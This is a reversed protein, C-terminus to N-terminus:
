SLGWAPNRMMQRGIGVLDANGKELLEEAQAPTRVGGTLIVPIKTNQKVAYSMDSFWGPENIGRRTFGNFGGSLDLIDIGEKELLVAAKAADQVTSGGDMYDCGGLRVAVPYDDGVSARVKSITETLFRLRNELSQPGYDDKRFNTLPSYFQNLLYGHASHIEVGDYGAKKARLAASAFADELRHIEFVNLERSTGGQVRVASASVLPHGTIRPSTNFGAHSIQVFIKVEPNAAHVAGTLKAQYPMVTDDAFSMQNPDARGQVDIFSHETIILGVLPNRAFTEYHSLTVGKPVGGETSQTAMPPVVIRTHLNLRKLKLEENIRM